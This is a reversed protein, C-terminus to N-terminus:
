VAAERERAVEAAYDRQLRATVPGPRAGPPLAVGDVTRVPVLGRTTSTVFVEDADQLQTVTM